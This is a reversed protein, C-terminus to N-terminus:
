TNRVRESKSLYLWSGAGYVVALVALPITSPFVTGELIWVLANLVLFARSYVIGVRWKLSLSIGGAASMIATTLVILFAFYLKWQAAGSEGFVDRVGAVAAQGYILTGLFLTLIFAFLIGGIGEPGRVAIGSVVSSPWAGVTSDPENDGIKMGM